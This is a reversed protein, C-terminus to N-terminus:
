RTEKKAQQKLTAVNLRIADAQPFQPAMKLLEEWIHIATRPDKKDYAYVIGMNYRANLHGPDHGLALRYEALAQDPMGLERYTTGLDSRVDANRPDLLLAQEYFKSAEKWRGTDFYADGLAILATLNNPDAALISQYEEILGQYYPTQGDDPKTVQETRHHASPAKKEEVRSCGSLIAACCVAAMLTTKMKM